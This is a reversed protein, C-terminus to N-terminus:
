ALEEVISLKFPFKSSAFAPKFYKLMTRQHRLSYFTGKLMNKHGERIKASRFPMQLTNTIYNMIFLINFIVLGFYGSQKFVLLMISLYFQRDTQENKILSSSTGGGIHTISADPTYMLRYGKDNIRYCWETEEGYMFFDPDFPKVKEVVARRVVMFAGLMAQVAHEKEHMSAVYEEQRYKGYGVKSAVFSIIANNLLTAKLGIRYDWASNQRSGDLSLIKCGVGALDAEQKHLDMYRVCTNIGQDLNLTDSNLILLYEGKSVAIGLNNGRAFGSNEVSKILKILPFAMRFDEPDREVSANDVLIVEFDFNWTNKYIDRLCDCTMEYTNYNIIIISLKM